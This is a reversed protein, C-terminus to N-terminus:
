KTVGEGAAAVAVAARIGDLGARWAALTQERDSEVAALIGAHRDCYKRLRAIEARAETLQEATTKM